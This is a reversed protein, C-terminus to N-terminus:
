RPRPRAARDGSPRRAAGPRANGAGYRPVGTRRIRLYRYEEVSPCGDRGTGSGSLALLGDDDLRVTISDSIDVPLGAVDELASVTRPTRGTTWLLLSAAHTLQTYLHGGGSTREAYTAPSPSLPAATREQMPEVDGVYLEYVSTSFLGTVLTLEGLEGALIAERLQWAHRSHLYTYGIHLRAGSADARRVLDWAQAPDITM